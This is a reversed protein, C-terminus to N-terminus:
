CVSRSDASASGGILASCSRFFTSQGIWCGRRRLRFNYRVTGDASLLWAIGIVAVIHILFAIYFMLRLFFSKESEERKDPTQHEEPGSRQKSVNRWRVMKALILILIIKLVVLNDFHIVPIQFTEPRLRGPFRGIWVILAMTAAGLLITFVTIGFAIWTLDRVRRGFALSAGRTPRSMEALFLVAGFTITVACVISAVSTLPKLLDLPVLNRSSSIGASSAGMGVVIANIVTLAALIALTLLLYLPTRWTLSFEVMRGFLARAFGTVFNILSRSDGDWLFGIVDRLQVKGETKPAWYCEYLHVEQPDAGPRPLKLEVRQLVTAGVRVERFRPEIRVGPSSHQAVRILGEALQELTEYPVQQGMGHVIWVARKATSGPPQSSMTERLRQAAGKQEGETSALPFAEYSVPSEVVFRGLSSKSSM